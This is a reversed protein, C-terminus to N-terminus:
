WNQTAPNLNNRLLTTGVFLRRLRGDALNVTSGCGTSPVSCNLVQLAQTATAMSPNTSTTAKSTPQVTQVTASQVLLGVRAGVVPLQYPLTANLSNPDSVWVSPALVGDVNNDLGYLVRMLNVGRLLEQAKSGQGNGICWLSMVPNSSTYIVSKDVYYVNIVLSLGNSVTTAFGNCDTPTALTADLYYTIALANSGTVTDADAPTPLTTPWNSNGTVVESPLGVTQSTIGTSNSPTEGARRLDAILLSIMNRGQDQTQAAAGQTGTSQQSSLYLQLAAGSVMLGLFMAIVLEILTYGEPQPRSAKM